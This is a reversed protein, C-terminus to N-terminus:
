LEQPTNLVPGPVSCLSFNLQYYYFGGDKVVNFWEKSDQGSVLYNCVDEFIEDNVKIGCFRNKKEYVVGDVHIAGDDLLIWVLFTYIMTSEEREKLGRNSGSVFEISEVIM